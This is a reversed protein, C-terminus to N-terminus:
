YTDRRKLIYTLKFKGEMKITLADLFALLEISTEMTFHIDTYLNNLYEYFENM